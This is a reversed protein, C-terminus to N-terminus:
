PLAQPICRFDGPFGEKWLGGLQLHQANEVIEKKKSSSKIHHFYILVRSMIAAETTAQVQQTQLNPNPKLIKKEKKAEFVDIVHQVVEICSIQTHKYSELFDFMDKNLDSLVKRPIPGDVKTCLPISPYDVPLVIEIFFAMENLVIRLRFSIEIKRRYKENDRMCQLEQEVEPTLIIENSYAAVMMEIEALQCQTKFETDNDSDVM